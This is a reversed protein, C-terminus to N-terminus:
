PRADQFTPLINVSHILGVWRPHRPAATKVYTRPASQQLHSDIGIVLFGIHLKSSHEWCECDEKTYM